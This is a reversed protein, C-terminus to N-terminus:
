MAAQFYAYVTEFLEESCDEVWNALLPDGFEIPPEDDLTIFELELAHNGMAMQTDTPLTAIVNLRQEAGNVIADVRLPTAASQIAAKAAAWAEGQDANPHEDLYQELRSGFVVRFGQEVTDPFGISQIANKKKKM